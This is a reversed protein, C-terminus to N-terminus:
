SRHVKGPRRWSTSNVPSRRPTFRRSYTLWCPWSLWENEQPWYILLLNATCSPAAQPISVPLSLYPTRQLYCMDSRTLPTRSSASYVNVNGKGKDSPNELRNAATTNLQRSHIWWHHDTTIENNMDHQVIVHNTLTECRMQWMRAMISVNIMLM